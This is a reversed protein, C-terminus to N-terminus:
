SKYYKIRSSLKQFPKEFFKNFYLSALITVLFIVVFAVIRFLSNQSYRIALNILTFGIITHILYISYSIQGLRYFIINNMPKCSVIFLQTIIVIIGIELKMSDFIIFDLGIILLILKLDKKTGSSLFALCIGSIFIPLWFLIELEPVYSNLYFIISLILLVLFRLKSSVNTLPFIFALFIYFQFEIALTWYVINLWPYDSFPILYGLHLLVQSFNFYLHLPLDALCSKLTLLVLIFILSIIYPPEIRILRKLLFTFINEIKYNGSVMSSTLIYGSIVFFMQVGHKAFDFLHILSESLLFNNSVCVFHFIMVMLAAMGRLETILRNEKM